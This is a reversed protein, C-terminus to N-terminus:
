DERLELRADGRPRLHALRELRFMQQLSRLAGGGAGRGARPLPLLGVTEARERAPPGFMFGNGVSNRECPDGICAISAPATPSAHAASPRRSGRGPATTIAEACQSVDTGISVALGFGSVM